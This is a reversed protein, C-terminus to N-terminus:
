LEPHFFQLPFYLNSTIFPDSIFSSASYSLPCPLRQVSLCSLEDVRKM